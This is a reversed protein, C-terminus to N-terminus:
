PLIRLPAMIRHATSSMINETFIEEAAFASLASTMKSRVGSRTSARMRSRRGDSTMKSRFLRRMFGSSVISAIL